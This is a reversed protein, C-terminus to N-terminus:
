ILAKKMKDFEEHNVEGRAYREKLIDIARNPILGSYKKQSRYTYGWSGLNSFVLFMFGLWFVWGWGLFFDNNAM